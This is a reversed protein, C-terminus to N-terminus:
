IFGYSKLYIDHASNLDTIMNRRDRVTKVSHCTGIELSIANHM